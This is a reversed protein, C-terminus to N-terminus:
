NPHNEDPNRDFTKGTLREVDRVVDEFSTDVSLKEGSNLHFITGLRKGTEEDCLPHITDIDDTDVM